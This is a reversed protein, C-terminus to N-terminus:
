ETYHQVYYNEWVLGEQFRISLFSEKHHSTYFEYSSIDLSFFPIIIIIQNKTKFYLIQKNSYEQNKYCKIPSHIHTVTDKTLYDFTLYRLFFNILIFINKGKLVYIWLCWNM